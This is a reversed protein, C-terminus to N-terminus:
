VRRPRYLDLDPRGGLSAFIQTIQRRGAQLNKALDADRTEGIRFHYDTPVDFGHEISAEDGIALIVAEVRISTGPKGEEDVTLLFDPPISEDEASDVTSQEDNKDQEIEALDIRAVRCPMRLRGSLLDCDALAVLAREIWDRYTMPLQMPMKDPSQAEIAEIALSSLSQHPLMPFPDDIVPRMSHGIANAEILTVSYGLFRGYLAAEIGLPGAGIVAITGPPDLTAENPYSTETM